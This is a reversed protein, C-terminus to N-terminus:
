LIRQFFVRPRGASVGRRFEVFGCKAAVRMSAPNDESTLAIVRIAGLAGHGWALVAQVAESAYGKGFASRVLSWGVEPVDRLDAGRDRKRDSFGVDGIFSGTQREVIAWTGFGMYQWMGPLKLFSAWADEESIPRGDGIHRMVETDARMAMYAPFDDLGHARLVLRPTELKPAAAPMSTIQVV